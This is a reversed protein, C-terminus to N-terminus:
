SLTKSSNIVITSFLYKKSNKYLFNSLRLDNSM